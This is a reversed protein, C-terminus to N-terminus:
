VADSYPLGTGRSMYTKLSQHLYRWWANRCNLNCELRPRLGAHTFKLETAAEDIPKLEFRVRTGNWDHLNRFGTDAPHNGETCEWEVLEGPALRKIVFRYTAGAKPFQFESEEGEGRGLKCFKTWWGTIGEETTLAAYVKSAPAPLRVTTQFDDSSNLRQLYEVQGEVISTWGGEHKRRLDETPLKEHVLTLRTNNGEPTFYITVLTDINQTYKSRWTFSLKRPRDIEVYKGFHATEDQPNVMDIRFEGGMRVDAEVRAHLVTNPCMLRRLSNPDVWADFVEEPPAALLREVKVADKEHADFLSM